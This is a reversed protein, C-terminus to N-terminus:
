GTTGPRYGCPQLRRLEAQIQNFKWEAWERLEPSRKACETLAEAMGSLRGYEFVSDGFRQFLEPGVAM